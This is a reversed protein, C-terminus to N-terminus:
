EKLMAVFHIVAWTVAGLTLVIDDWLTLAPIVEFLHLIIVAIILGLALVVDGLFLINSFKRKYIGRLSTLIVTAYSVLRLYDLFTDIFTNM